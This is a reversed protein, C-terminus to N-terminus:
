GGGGQRAFVMTGVPFQAAEPSASVVGKADTKGVQVMTSPQNGVGVRLAFLDANSPLAGSESGLIAGTVPDLVIAVPAYRHQLPGAAAAIADNYAKRWQEVKLADKLVARL